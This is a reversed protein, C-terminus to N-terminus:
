NNASGGTFSGGTAPDMPLALITGLFGGNPDDISVRDGVEVGEKRVVCLGYYIGRLSIPSMNTLQGVETNAKYLRSRHTSKSPENEFAIGMLRRHVKDYTDLRAIVEQGVYCGKDYSISHSLGVEYPNFSDCIENGFRPIGRVIRYFDFAGDSMFCLGSGQRGVHEVLQSRREKDVILDFRETEPGSRRSLIVPLDSVRHELFAGVEPISGFLKRLISSSEPGILSLMLMDNSRSRVQVDEMIVFKEIWHLFGDENKPSPLILLSSDRLLIQVYDVMRGKETLFSTSITNGVRAGKLDNTSLRHLLDVRETGTVELIPNTQSDLIIARHMAQNVQEAPSLRETWVPTINSVSNDM